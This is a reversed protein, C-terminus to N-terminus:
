KLDIRYKIRKREQDREGQMTLCAPNGQQNEHNVPFIAYVYDRDKRVKRHWSTDNQADVESLLIKREGEILYIRYMVINTNDPNARWHLVNIYEIQSLSRNTVTQGEFELPPHIGTPISSTLHCCYTQSIIAEESSRVQDTDPFTSRWQTLKAETEALTWDEIPFSYSFIGGGAGDDLAYTNLFHSSAPDPYCLEKKALSLETMPANSPGNIEDPTTGALVWVPVSVGCVPEGLIVWMTSLRPDEGPLVGHFVVASRTRHRNISYETRVYGVPHGEQTGEYPLPYPDIIDNKLDRSMNRLVYEHSLEGNLVAETILETAREYREYGAGSGDGTLAFNTRVVFGLPAVEPDDADYKTYSHNGAEFIAAAGTADIVGYNALTERGPSNTEVLLQEFEDVTACTQLARKMFSGNEASSPGELDASLSNEVAFGASNIGMWISNDYGPLVVGIVDYMGGPFYVVEKEIDNTDQNKWLLPRGDVTAKGSAVATTCQEQASLPSLFFSIILFVPLVQRWLKLCSEPKLYKPNM